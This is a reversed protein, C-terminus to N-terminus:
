LSINEIIYKMALVDDRNSEIITEWDPKGLTGLIFGQYELGMHNGNKDPNKFPYRFYSAVVSLSYGKPIYLNKRCIELLDIKNIKKFTKYDLLNSKLKNELHVFDFKNGNHACLVFKNDMRSQLYKIFKELIMKENPTKKKTIFYQYGNEEDYIGILYIYFKGLNYPSSEIGIPSTEIDVYIINKPFKKRTYVIPENKTYAIATEIFQKGFVKGIGGRLGISGSFVKNLKESLKEFSRRDDNSSFFIPNTDIFDRISIYAILQDYTKKDLFIQRKEGKGHSKKFQISNNKFNNCKLKKFEELSLNYKFLLTLILKEEENDALSYIKQLDNTTLLRTKLGMLLKDSSNSLDHVTNIGNNSLLVENFIGIDKIERLSGDYDSIKIWQVKIENQYDIIAINGKSGPKDHSSVNVVTTKGINRSYGGYGHIHGCIVLPIKHKKVFKKLEFSGFHGIGFRRGIDLVGHPPTHSIIIPLNDCKLIQNELHTKADSEKMVVHGICRNVIKNKQFEMESSLSSSNNRWNFAIDDCIVGHIGMFYQEGIKIPKEHLNFVNDGELASGCNELDDNGIVGLIPVNIMKSLEQFIKPFDIVPIINSQNDLQFVIIKNGDIDILRGSEIGVKLKYKVAEIQGPKLELTSSSVTKLVENLVDCKQGNIESIALEKLEDESIIDSCRSFKYCFINEDVKFVFSNKNETYTLLKFRINKIFLHKDFRGLDDGAYIIADINKIKKFVKFLVDISQVRWDSFALIRM